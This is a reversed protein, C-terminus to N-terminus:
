DFRAPQAAPPTAASVAARAKELSQAAFPGAIERYAGDGQLFYLSQGSSSKLPTSINWGLQDMLGAVPNDSTGVNVISTDPVNSSMSFHYGWAVDVLLPEVTVATLYKGKGDYSGGYTRLVQYRLDIVKIGYANKATLEYITGVPPLWGAMDTWGSVGKPLATAFQTKVDVVPKNDEVIKWIKLGLNIINDLTPIVNSPTLAPAPIDAPNVTPGIKAIQISNEDLTFTGPDKQAAKLEEASFQPWAPASLLLAALAVPIRRSM